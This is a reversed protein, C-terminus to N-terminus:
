GEERAERRVAQEYIREAREELDHQARAQAKAAADSRPPAQIHRAAHRGLQLEKARLVEADIKIGLILMTNSLWVAMFVAMILSFAGYVSAGAFRQTYLAFAGWVVVNASLAVVSGLTIWRFRAPRVNPSFHYLIAILSLVIVVTLPFRLWNWVPMFIGGLFDATGQMDLKGALPEVVGSVITDRLLNAFLVIVAGIVLIITLGWMLAWTRIIGRGEVRGYVINATRSFARVYASAAFLSVLVSVVLAFTGQATSGIISGVLHEAQETMSSPVYDAIFQSTLEHVEARRSSFILTAISYAALVTPAFAMLTFYTMTAARDMLADHFFDAWVRRVVLGWSEKRLRNGCALPDLEDTHGEIKVVTPATSPVIKDAGEYVSESVPTAAASSPTGGPQEASPLDGPTRAAGPVEASDDLTSM